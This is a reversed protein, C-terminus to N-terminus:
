PYRIVRSTDKIPAGILSGGEGHNKAEKRSTCFRINGCGIIDLKMAVAPAIITGKYPPGYLLDFEFGIDANTRIVKAYASALQLMTRGCDFKGSNFFYPSLRGSKLTRGEPILELAGIQLTYQIFKQGLTDENPM